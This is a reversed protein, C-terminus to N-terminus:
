PQRNTINDYLLDRATDLAGDGNLDEGSDLMGNSNLDEDLPRALRRPYEATPRPITLPPVVPTRPDSGDPEFLGVREDPGGSVILPTWYTDVTHYFREDVPAGQNTSGLLDYYDRFRGSPGFAASTQSDSLYGVPDDPDQNLPHSYRDAQLSTANLAPADSVLVSATGVYFDRTIDGNQLPFAPPTSTEGVPRILRTPWNYFRLPQGWGDVIELLGDEDTDRVYDSNFGDLSMASNGFVAGETLALVLLEISETAAVHNAPTTLKANWIALLPANDNGGPDGDLGYLDEVRQPFASRFRDKRIVVAALEASITQPSNAQDYNRKFLDAQPKLNVRGFDELRQQLAGDLQRITARTAEERSNDMAGSLVTFSLGFLLTLIALVVLLEILTFGSRRASEFQAAHKFM